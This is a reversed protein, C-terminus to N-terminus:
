TSAVQQQLRVSYGDMQVLFYQVQRNRSLSLIHTHDAPPMLCLVFNVLNVLGPYTGETV